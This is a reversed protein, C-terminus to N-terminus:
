AVASVKATPAGAIPKGLPILWMDDPISKCDEDYLSAMARRDDAGWPDFSPYRGNGTGKPLIDSVSGVLGAAAAPGLRASITELISVAPGSFSPREVKSDETKAGADAGFAIAKLVSDEHGRFDEFRWIKVETPKLAAQLRKILAPWRLTKLDFRARFSDFTAFQKTHRMAECYASATFDDYSRVAMFLTIEHGALLGRARKLRPEARQYAKGTGILDNCLGILNEDSLILGRVNDPAGDEFFKDLHDNIRFEGVQHQMLNRTFFARFQGLAMAGVGAQNLLRKNKAFIGQLYTTATKHVGVHVHLKM